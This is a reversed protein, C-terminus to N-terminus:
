AEARGNLYKARLERISNLLRRRDHPNDAILYRDVFGGLRAVEDPRGAGRAEAIDRQALSLDTPLEPLLLEAQRESSM